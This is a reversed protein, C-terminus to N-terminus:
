CSARPLGLACEFTLRLNLGVRRAAASWCSAQTRSCCASHDQGRRSSWLEACVLCACHLACCNQCVRRTSRCRVPGAPLSLLVSSRPAGPHPASPLSGASAHATCHRHCPPAFPGSLALVLTSHLLSAQLLAQLAGHQPAAVFPGASAHAACHRHCPPACLHPSILQGAGLVASHFLGWLAGASAHATCHRHRPPAPM